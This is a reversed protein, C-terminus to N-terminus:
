YQLSHILFLKLTKFKVSIVFNMDADLSDVHLIWHTRRFGIDSESTAM